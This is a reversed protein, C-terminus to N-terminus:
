VKLNKDHRINHCNRCTARFDKVNTLQEGKRGRSHDIETASFSCGEFKYECESHNELYVKRLTLYAKNQIARKDSLPKIKVAKKKIPTRKLVYVKEKKPAIIKPDPRFSIKM